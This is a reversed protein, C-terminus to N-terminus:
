HFQHCFKGSIDNIGTAFKGGTTLRSSRIDGRIKSFIRFPGLPISLAKPPFQNMFFALLLFDRSVTGKLVTSTIPKPSQHDHNVQGIKFAKKKHPIHWAYKAMNEKGALPFLISDKRPVM